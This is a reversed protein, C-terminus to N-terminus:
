PNQTQGATYGPAVSIVGKLRSFVAETCWFCGGGLVISKIDSM